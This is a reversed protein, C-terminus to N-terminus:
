ADGRRGGAPRFVPLTLEEDFAVFEVEVPMGVRVDAVEVAVLNSVLRTGEELEVLAVPLPYDFAGVQPHHNVVYSYVTGRGASALTDWELSRCYPCMPRPPHRLRRCVACRQILLKGQRAGEFFFANDQTLAPRPRRPRARVPEPVAPEGTEGEAGPGPPRFKLIRFLMTAVREGSQDTYTVRTTVFHGAGLATRKEASVSEIVSSVSLHDGLHLYRDYEQDCNTAVVSTFGADDLVRMLEDQATGGSAPRPRLGRMAWAQLMVPPAVVQGHVSAAAADPDVYVPNGDGVAEVWHRIMAQNVPDPAREPPGADRGEFARLRALLEDRAAEDREDHQSREDRERGAAGGDGTAPATPREVTSL